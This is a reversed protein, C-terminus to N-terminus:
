VFQSTQTILPLVVLSHNPEGVVFTINKLNMKEIFGDIYRVHDFFRYEIDSKGSRGMGILEPAICRGKPM